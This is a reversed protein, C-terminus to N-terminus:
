RHRFSAKGPPQSAVSGLVKVCAETSWNRAEKPLARPEVVRLSHMEKLM